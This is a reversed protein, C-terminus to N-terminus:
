APVGVLDAFDIIHTKEIQPCTLACCDDYTGILWLEYDGPHKGYPHDPNNALEGFARCAVANNHLFVPTNFIKAKKDYVSYMKTIM